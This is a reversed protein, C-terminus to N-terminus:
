AGDGAGSSGPGQQPQQQQQAMAACWMAVYNQYGGYAAYPDAGNSGAAAAAAQQQPDQAGPYGGSAGGMANMMNGMNMAMNMSSQDQYYPQNDDQYQDGGGYSSGGPPRRPPQRTSTSDIKEQIIGKAADIASRPGTLTVEREANRDASRQINVRCQSMNQIDRITEGGKGIILGVAEPPIMITETIRGADGPPGGRSAANAGQRTDSEVIEMILDKAKQKAEESGKLNVPRLGNISQNENVINLRCGSRDQLDRITEGGRGIILGVTRDPVMIQMSDGETLAGRVPAGREPMGRASPMGRAPGSNSESIIKQIESKAHQRAAPPGQIRCFRVSSTQDVELFQVRTGTDAEIRKLSEGGRGIVLGVFSSEVSITEANEEDNAPPERRDDAYAPVYRDRERNDREVGRDWSGSDRYPRGGGRPPSFSRERERDRGGYARDVGRRDARREDRYPNYNDRFVERAGHRSPPSRSPSRPYYGRSDRRTDM